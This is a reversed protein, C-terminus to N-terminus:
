QHEISFRCHFRCAMARWQWQEFMTARAACATALFQTTQPCQVEVVASSGNLGTRSNQCLELLNLERCSSVVM